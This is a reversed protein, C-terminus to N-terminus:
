EKGKIGLKNKIWNWVKNDWTWPTKYVIFGIVGVLWVRDAFWLKVANIYNGIDADVPIANIFDMIM